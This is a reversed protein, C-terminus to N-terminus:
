GMVGDVSMGMFNASKTALPWTSVLKTVTSLSCEAMVAETVAEAAPARTMVADLALPTARMCSIKGMAPQKRVGMTKPSTFRHM